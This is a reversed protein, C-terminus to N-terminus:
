THPTEVPIPGDTAAATLYCGASQRPDWDLNGPAAAGGAAADSIFRMNINAVHNPSDDLCLATAVLVSDKFVTNVSGTAVDVAEVGEIYCNKM